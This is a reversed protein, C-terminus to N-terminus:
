EFRFDKEFILIFCCISSLGEPCFYTWNNLSNWQPRDDFQYILLYSLNINMPQIELHFSYTLNPNNRTLNIQHYHFFEKKENNLETVNQQFMESIRLNLDRPIFFEIPNTFNTQNRDVISLTFSRSFNTFAYNPDQHDGLPLPQILRQFFLNVIM